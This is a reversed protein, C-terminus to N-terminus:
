HLTGEAGHEGAYRLLDREFDAQSGYAGGTVRAVWGWYSEDPRELLFRQMEVISIDSHDVLFDVVTAVARREEATAQNHRWLSEVVALGDPQRTLLGYDAAGVPAPRLGLQSLLTDRLAGYFVVRDCCAWGALNAAAASVVRSTYARSLARYAADDAPRGFLTPTPLVLKSGGAWTDQPTRYESLAAPDTSFTLDIFINGACLEGVLRCLEALAADMDRALPEVVDADRAPYHVRVYRNGMAQAQGWFGEEPPSYLWRDPGQRYIATQQLTITETLGNGIAVVYAQPATLEAARLDPSLTVTPSVPAAPTWHLDFATRDIFGGGRVLREQARSWAADRGSLFSVFLEGDGRQAADLITAHSAAVETTLRAQALASRRDLQWYLVALLAVVLVGIAAVTLWRRRPRAPAPTEAPEPAAAAADEAEAWDMTWRGARRRPPDQQEDWHRDETQWDFSM